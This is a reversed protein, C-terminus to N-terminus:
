RARRGKHRVVLDYIHPPDLTSLCKPCRGGWERVIDDLARLRGEHLTFGCSQCKVILPM